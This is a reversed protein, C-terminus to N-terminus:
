AEGDILKQIEALEAPTWDSERIFWTGEELGVRELYRLFMDKWNLPTGLAETLPACKCNMPAQGCEACFLGNELERGCKCMVTTTM